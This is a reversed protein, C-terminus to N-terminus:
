WSSISKIACLYEDRNSIVVPTRKPDQAFDLPTRCEFETGFRKDFYYLLARRIQITVEGEHMDYDLEIAKREWLNLRPNPILRVQFYSHWEADETQSAEMAQKDRTGRCRSLLFDKFIGSSHCFARVHWRLGDSAFAHPTIRRWVPEPTANNFSQYHIEISKRERITTLMARLIEPDVKRTPIPLSDATTSMALWTDEKRIVGSSLADLQGLYKEADPKIFQCRFEETPVYRKSSLDYRINQPAVLQYRTLDNSAQQGSVGFQDTIRSRNIEGDWYLVFDIFELRQEVGRRTKAIHEPM